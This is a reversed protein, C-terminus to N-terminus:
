VVKGLKGYERKIGEMLYELRIVPPEGADIAKLTAHRVAHMIAAGSLEYKLSIDQLNLGPELRAQTPLAKKWLLYRAEPNPFPFRIIAQFRRMFAERRVGAEGVM